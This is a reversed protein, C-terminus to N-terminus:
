KLSYATLTESEIITRGSWTDAEIMGIGRALYFDYM